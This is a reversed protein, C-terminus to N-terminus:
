AAPTEAKAPEAPAAPTEPTPTPTAAAPPTEVKKAKAVVRKAGTIVGKDVLLNHVTDSPQAGQSIWHKVREANVDLKAPSQHPDYTGLQELFTGLTDKRKDSVVLRYTAHNKKGLRSLRISVM